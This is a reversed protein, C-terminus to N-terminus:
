HSLRNVDPANVNVLVDRNCLMIELVGSHFKNNMDPKLIKESM